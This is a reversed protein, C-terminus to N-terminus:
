CIVPEITFSVKEGFYNYAFLVNPKTKKIITGGKLKNTISSLFLSATNYPMLGGLFRDNNPSQKFTQKIRYMRM